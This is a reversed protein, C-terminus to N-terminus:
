INLDEESLIGTGCHLDVVTYANKLTCMQQARAKMMIEWM